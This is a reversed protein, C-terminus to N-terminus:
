IKNEKELQEQCEKTYRAYPIANLRSKAIRKGCMPCVGYSGEEIRKLAADIEMLIKRESSVLGINFDREYNDSAVDAMHLSYGSIDGSLDKQTKMLTDESIDRIQSLIDDRLNFLKEKYVTLEKKSLKTKTKKASQRAM